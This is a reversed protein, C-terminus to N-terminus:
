DFIVEHAQQVIKSVPCKSSIVKLRDLQEQTLNKNGYTINKHFVKQRKEDETVHIDVNIEGTEWGKREAYMRLTIAICGALAGQLSEMPTPGLNTGGDSKPEDLIWEFDRVKATGKFGNEPLQFTTKKM